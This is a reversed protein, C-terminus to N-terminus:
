WPEEDREGHAGLELSLVEFGAGACRARFASAETASSFAAITVDGGGAGSPKAAGGHDRALHRLQECTKTMISASAAEGLEGMATGYSHFCEIVTGLDGAMLASILQESQQALDRMRARYVDPAHAALNRIQALMDSTRVPTGHWVVVLELQEPWGLAHTEVGDGLKRFRVFGGLVAAAVDAGSGHPAVARHGELAALLVQERTERTAVDHGHAAFVAGAAAAATAASSGLGLKRGEQQLEGVDLTIAGSVPGLRREAAARAAQAEPSLPPQPGAALRAYARRGVATVVAEAGELVAYEGAIMLKGPASVVLTPTADTM